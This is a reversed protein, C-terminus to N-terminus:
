VYRRISLVKNVWTMCDHFLYVDGPVSRTIWAMKNSCKTFESGDIGAVSYRKPTCKYVYCVSKISIAL